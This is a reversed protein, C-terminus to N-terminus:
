KGTSVTDSNVQVYNAKFGQFRKTYGGDSLFVVELSEGFSQISISTTNVNGCIKGSSTGNSYSGNIIQLYDCTCSMGCQQIQLFEINLVVRHGERATIKWSCAQNGPYGRPYFPSTIVGATENLIISRPCVASCYEHLM